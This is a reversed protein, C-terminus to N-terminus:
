RKWILRSNETFYVFESFLNLQSLHFSMFRQKSFYNEDRIIGYKGYQDQDVAVTASTTKDRKDKKKKTKKEKKEKKPKSSKKEKKHKKSEKGSNKEKKEKKVKKQRKEREEETSSITSNTSADSDADSEDDSQVTAQFNLSIITLLFVLSLSFSIVSKFYVWQRSRELTEVRNKEKAEDERERKKSVKVVSEERAAIDSSSM